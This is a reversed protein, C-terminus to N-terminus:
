AFRLYIPRLDAALRTLSHHEVIRQRGAAGMQQRLDENNLLERVAVALASPDHAPVLTGTKGPEFAEVTGTGVDTVVVPLGSAQAELISIGFAEARNTSPLVFVGAAALHQVLQVESVEGVLHVRGQLGHLRIREELLSRLPGEGIIVVHVDLDEAAVILDDFGKYHVLRGVSIVHPV